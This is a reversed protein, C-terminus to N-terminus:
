GTRRVRRARGDALVRVDDLCVYSLRRGAILCLTALEDRNIWTRITKVSRDVKRAAYDPACWTTGDITEVKAREHAATVNRAYEDETWTRKCKPCTWDEFDWLGNGKADRVREGDRDYKPRLKRQLRRGGCEDYMCPVGQILRQGDHLTDELRRRALAVDKALDEFHPENDWAWELCWRLFNTETGITARRGDLEKDHIVRWQDSWYCLTQLPPEWSDDEAETWDPMDEMRVYPDASWAREKGDILNAWTEPSGVYALDVMAKGGPLLRDNADHVAQTLLREHLTVIARLDSAVDAQLNLSM